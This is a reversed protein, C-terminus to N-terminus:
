NNQPNRAISFRGTRPNRYIQGSIQNILTKIAIDNGESNWGYYESVYADAIENFAGPGLSIGPIDNLSIEIAANITQACIKNAAGRSKPKIGAKIMAVSSAVADSLVDWHTSRSSRIDRRFNDTIAGIISARFPNEFGFIASSLTEVGFGYDYALTSGRIDKIAILNGVDKYSKSKGRIAFTAGKGTLNRMATKEGYNWRYYEPRNNEDEIILNEQPIGADFFGKILDTDQDSLKIVVDDTELGLRNTLFNWGEQFINSEPHATVGLMRFHSMYQLIVETSNIFRRYNSYNQTRLCDQGGFIGPFSLANNAILEKHFTMTDVVFFPDNDPSIISKNPEQIYRQSLFHSCFNVQLMRNLHKAELLSLSDSGDSLPIIDKFKISPLISKNAEVDTM